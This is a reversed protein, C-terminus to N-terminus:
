KTESLNSAFVPLARGQDADFLLNAPSTHRCRGPRWQSGGLIEAFWRAHVDDGIEYVM